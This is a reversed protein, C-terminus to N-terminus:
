FASMMRDAFSFKEELFVTRSGDNIRLSKLLDIMYALCASIIIADNNDEGDM